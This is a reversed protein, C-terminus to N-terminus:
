RKERAMKQSPTKSLIGKRWAGTDKGIQEILTGFIQFQELSVLKVEWLLHFLFRIDDIKSISYELLAIKREGSNFGARRLALLLDLIASDTREGIGFRETRPIKRHVPIWAKFLQQTKEVM